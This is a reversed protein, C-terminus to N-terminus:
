RTRIIEVSTGGPAAMSNEPTVLRKSASEGGANIVDSSLFEEAVFRGLQAAVRFWHLLGYQVCRPLPLVPHRRTM